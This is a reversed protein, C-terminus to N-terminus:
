CAFLIERASDDLCFKNKNGHSRQTWRGIYGLKIFFESCSDSSINKPHLYQGVWLYEVDITWTAALSKLIYGVSSAQHKM